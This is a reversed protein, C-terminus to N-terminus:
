RGRRRCGGRFSDHDPRVGGALDWPSQSAQFQQTPLDRSIRFHRFTVTASRMRWKARIRHAQHLLTVDLKDDYDLESSTRLIHLDTECQGVDGFSNGM